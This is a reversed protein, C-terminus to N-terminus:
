KFELGVGLFGRIYSYDTAVPANLFPKWTPPWTTPPEIVKLDTLPVTLPVYRYFNLIVRMHKQTM